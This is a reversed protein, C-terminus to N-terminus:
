LREGAKFLAYQLLYQGRKEKAVLAPRMFPFARKSATGFELDISHAQASFVQASLTRKFGAGSAKARTKQISNRTVGTHTLWRLMGNYEGSALGTRERFGDVFDKGGSWRGLHKELEGLKPHGARAHEQVEAVLVDLADLMNAEAKAEYSTLKATATNSRISVRIGDAAM